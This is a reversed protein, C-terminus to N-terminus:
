SQEMPEERDSRKHETLQAVEERLLKVETILAQMESVPQSHRLFIGALCATFVGFLGIGCIMLIVAVVRGENTVPYKDGYGVTTMTTISWWLADSASHINASSDSEVNLVAISAFMVLLIALLIVSGIGGQFGGRFVVSLIVKVSRISRLVRILRLVSVVRGWRFIDLNPISSILDIWGWRLFRWKNPAVTLRWFFDVLFVICIASDFWGLLQDTEPSLKWVSEVFMACLVYVSLVVLLLQWTTVERRSAPAPIKASANVANKRAMCALTPSDNRAPLPEWLRFRRM